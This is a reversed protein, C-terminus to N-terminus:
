ARTATVAFVVFKGADTAPAAIAFPVAIVNPAFAPENCVAVNKAIRSAADAATLSAM